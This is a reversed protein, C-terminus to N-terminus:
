GHVPASATDSDDLGYIRYRDIAKASPYQATLDDSQYFYDTVVIGPALDISPQPNLLRTTPPHGDKGRVSAEPDDAQSGGHGSAVDIPAVVGARNIQM